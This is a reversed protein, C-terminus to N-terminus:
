KVRTELGKDKRKRNKRFLNFAGKAMAPSFRTALYVIGAATITETPREVINKISNWALQSLDGLREGTFTRVGENTIYAKGVEFLQKPVHYVALFNDLYGDGGAGATSSLATLPAAFRAAEKTAGYSAKGLFKKIGM